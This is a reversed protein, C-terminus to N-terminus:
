HGYHKLYSPPMASHMGRELEYLGPLMRLYAVMAIIMVIAVGIGGGCLGFVLLHQAQVDM